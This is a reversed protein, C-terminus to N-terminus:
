KFLYVPGYNNNLCVSAMNIQFPVSPWLQQQPVSLVFKNSFACQGYSNNLCVSALNIQFPVIPWLQQQPMSLGSKISFAHQAM